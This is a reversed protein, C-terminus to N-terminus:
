MHFMEMKSIQDQMNNPYSLYNLTNMFPYAMFQSSSGYFGMGYENVNNFNYFSSDLYDQTNDNFYNQLYEKNEIHGNGIGYIIGNFQELDNESEVYKSLFKFYIQLTLLADSGAQHMQGIRDINFDYAMKTLGSSKFQNFDKILYKIDFINQFYLKCLSEFSNYNASLESNTLTKLFYAFDFGGHFCVWKINENLVIGSGM